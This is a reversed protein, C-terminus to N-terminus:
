DVEISAFTEELIIILIWCAVFSVSMLITTIKINVKM